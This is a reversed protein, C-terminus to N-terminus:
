VSIKYFCQLYRPREERSVTLFQVRYFLNFLDLVSFLDSTKHGKVLFSQRKIENQLYIMTPMMKILWRGSSPMSGVVSWGSEMHGSKLVVPSHSFFLIIRLLASKTIQLM